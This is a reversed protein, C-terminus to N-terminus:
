VSQEFFGQLGSNMPRMNLTVVNQANITQM